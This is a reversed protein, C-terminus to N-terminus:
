KMKWRKWKRYLKNLIWIFVILGVFFLVLSLIIHEKIFDNVHGKFSTFKTRSLFAAKRLQLLETDFGFREAEAYSDLANELNSALAILNGYDFYINGVTKNPADVFKLREDLQHNIDRILDDLDYNGGNVPLSRTGFNLELISASNETTGKIQAELIKVHVWESGGHSKPNLRMSKKIWFLASDPQGILEYITGLNSATTYLNPSNKEIQFYIKKAQDYHTLYVLTAAYDSLYETSDESKELYSDWLSISDLLLESQNLKHYYVIGRYGQMQRVSGDLSTRYENLCAFSVQASFLFILILLIRNM